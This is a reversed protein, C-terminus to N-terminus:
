LDSLEFKAHLDHFEFHGSGDPCTTTAQRLICRVYFRSQESIHSTRLIASSHLVKRNIRSISAPSSACMCVRAYMWEHRHMYMHRYPIGGTRRHPRTAEALCCHEGFARQRPCPAIWLHLERLTHINERMNRPRLHIPPSSM